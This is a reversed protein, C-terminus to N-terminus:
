GAPASAALRAELVRDANWASAVLIGGPEPALGAYLAQRWRPFVREAPDQPEPRMDDFTRLSQRALLNGDADLVAHM